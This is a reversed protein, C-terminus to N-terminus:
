KQEHFAEGDLDTFSTLESDEEYDKLLVRAAEALQFRRNPTSVHQSQKRIDEKLLRLAEEILELRDEPSLRKLEDLLEIRTM